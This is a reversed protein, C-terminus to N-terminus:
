NRPPRPPHPAKAPKGPLEGVADFGERLLEPV